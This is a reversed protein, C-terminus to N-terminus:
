CCGPIGQNCGDDCEEWWEKMGDGCVPTGNKCAYSCGDKDDTFPECLLPVGKWCGDDCEEGVELKGNGCVPQPGLECDDVINNGNKDKDAPIGPQPYHLVILVDLQLDVINTVKDCNLDAGGAGVCAPVKSDLAALVTCQVDAVDVSGNGTVDGPIGGQASLAVLMVIGAAGCAAARGVAEQRADLSM